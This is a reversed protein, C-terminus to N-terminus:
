GPLLATTWKYIVNQLRQRNYDASFEVPTGVVAHGGKVGAKTSITLDVEPQLVSNDVAWGQTITIKTGAGSGLPWGGGFAHCQITYTGDPLNPIRFQGQRDTWDSYSVSTGTNTATVKAGSIPSHQGGKDRVVGAIRGTNPM